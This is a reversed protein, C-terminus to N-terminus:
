YVPALEVYSSFLSRSAEPRFEDWVVLFGQGTWAVTANFSDVVTRGDIEDNVVLYQQIEHGPGPSASLDALLDWRGDTLYTIVAGSAPFGVADSDMTPNYFDAPTEMDWGGGSGDFAWFDLWLEESWWRFAYAIWGAGGSSAHFATIQARGIAVPSGRPELTDPDIVVVAALGSHAQRWFMELASDEEDVVLMPDDGDLEGSPIYAAMDFELSPYHFRYIEIRTSGGSPYAETATYAFEGIRVPPSLLDSISMEEPSDGRALVDGGPSLRQMVVHDRMEQVACFLFDGDGADAIRAFVSTLGGGELVIREEGTPRGRADLPIFGVAETGGSVLGHYVLGASSGSWAVDPLLSFLLDAEIARDPVDRDVFEWRVPDADPVLDALVDDVAPDTSVDGAIRDRGGSAYCAQLWLALLCIVPIRIM